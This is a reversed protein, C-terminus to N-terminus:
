RRRPYGPHRARGRSRGGAPPEPAVEPTEPCAAELEQEALWEDDLFTSLYNRGTDALITAVNAETPLRQAVRRAAAVCAGSSGGVLLGDERVLRHAWRFAERDTVVEFGDVLDIALGDPVFDDGIGEV